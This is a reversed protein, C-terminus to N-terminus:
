LGRERAWAAVGELSYTSANENGEVFKAVAGAQGSIYEDLAAGILGNIATNTEEAPLAGVMFYPRKAVLIIEDGPTLQERLTVATAVGGFGGGLILVRAM